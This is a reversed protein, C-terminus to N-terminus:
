AKKTAADIFGITYVNENLLSQTECPGWVDVYILSGPTIPVRIRKVHSQRKSKALACAICPNSHRRLNVPSAENNWVIHGTKILEQIRDVSVHGLTKHLLDIAEAKSALADFCKYNYDKNSMGLYMPNVIYMDTHNLRAVLFVSAFNPQGCKNRDYFMKVGDGTVCWKGEKDLSPESVLDYVLSPVHLVNRLPGVDGVGLVPVLKGDAVRVFHNVTEVYNSFQNTDHFMHKTAGSDSVIDKVGFPGPVIGRGSHDKFPDVKNNCEFVVINCDDIMPSQDGSEKYEESAEMSDDSCEGCTWRIEIKDPAFTPVDPYVGLRAYMPDTNIVHPARLDYGSCWVYHYEDTPYCQMTNMHLSDRLQHCIGCACYLIDTQHYRCAVGVVYRVNSYEADEFEAYLDNNQIDKHAIRYDIHGTGYEKQVRHVRPNRALRPEADNDRPNVVFEPRREVREVVGLRRVPPPGLEQGTLGNHDMPRTVARVNVVEDADLREVCPLHATHLTLCSTCRCYDIDLWTHHCVPSATYQVQPVCIDRYVALPPHKNYHQLEGQRKGEMTNLYHTADEVGIMTHSSYYHRLSHVPPPITRRHPWTAAATATSYYPSWSLYNTAVDGHRTGTSPVNRWSDEPYGYVKRRKSKCRVHDDGSLNREREGQTPNYVVSALNVHEGGTLFAFEDQQIEMSRAAIWEQQLLSREHADEIDDFSPVTRNVNEIRESQSQMARTIREQNEPIWHARRFDAESGAYRPFMEFRVDNLRRRHQVNRAKNRRHTYHVSTDNLRRSPIPDPADWLRWQVVRQAGYRYVIRSPVATEYMADDGIETGTAMHADAVIIPTGENTEVIRRKTAPSETAVVAHSLPITDSTFTLTDENPSSVHTRRSEAAAALVDRRHGTEVNSETIVDDINRKLTPSTRNADHDAIRRKHRGHELCEWPYPRRQPPEAGIARRGISRELRDIVRNAKRRQKKSLNRETRERTAVLERDLEARREMAIVFEVNSDSMWESETQNRRRWDHIDGHSVTAPVGDADSVAVSASGIVNATNWSQLARETDNDFSDNNPETDRLDPDVDDVGVGQDTSSSAEPNPEVTQATPYRFGVSKKHDPRRQAAPSPSRFPRRHERREPSRSRNAHSTKLASRSSHRDDRGPSRRNSRDHPSGSRSRERNGDSSRKVGSFRNKFPSGSRHFSSSSNHNTQFRGPSHSRHDRDNFQRNYQQHPSNHRNHNRDFRSNVFDHVSNANAVHRNRTVEIAIMAKRIDTVSKGEQLMHHFTPRMEDTIGQQMVAIIDDVRVDYSFMSSLEHQLSDVRAMFSGFRENKDPKLKFFRTVFEGKTMINQQIFMNDLDKFIQLPDVANSRIFKKATPNNRLVHVLVNAQFNLMVTYNRTMALHVDQAATFLESRNEYLTDDAPPLDFLVHSPVFKPDFLLHMNYLQAQMLYCARWDMYNLDPNDPFEPYDTKRCRIIHDHENELEKLRTQFLNLKFKQQDTLPISPTVFNTTNSVVQNPTTPNQLFNNSTINNTVAPNVAARSFPNQQVIGPSTVQAVPPINVQNHYSPIFNAANPNLTSRFQNTNTNGSQPNSLFQYNQNSSMAPSGLNQSNPLNVPHQIQGNGSNSFLFPSTATTPFSTTFLASYNSSNPNGSQLQQQPFPSVGSVPTQFSNQPWQNQSYNSFGQMGVSPQPGYYSRNNNGVSSHPDYASRYGYNDPSYSRNRRDGNRRSGSYYNRSM